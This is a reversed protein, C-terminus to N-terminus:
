KKLIKYDVENLSDIGLDNIKDLITDKDLNNELFNLLVNKFDGDNFISNLDKQYLFTQTINKYSILIDYKEFLLYVEKHKEIDSFIYLMDYGYENESYALNELGDNSFIKMLYGFIKNKMFNSKPESVIFIGVQTM